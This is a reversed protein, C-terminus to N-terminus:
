NLPSTTDSYINYGGGRRLVAPMTLRAIQANAGRITSLSAKAMATVTEDPPAQFLPRLRLALNWQLAEEYEPPLVVATALTALSGLVAKTLIHIEYSSNVLPWAYLNGLPYDSDYFAYYSPGGAQRKLTIRAYDERAELIQMAYDVQNPVATNLGRVYAYEIRDPRAINFSGATGVTYSVAGTGTFATDVLHYVLWRMRNWQAIMRNLQRLALQSNEALPIQGVGIVGAAQLSDNIIDNATAM